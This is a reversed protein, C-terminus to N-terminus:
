GIISASLTGINFQSVKKINSSAVTAKTGKKNSTDNKTITNKTKNITKKPQSERETSGRGQHASIMENKTQKHVVEASAANVTESSTRTDM